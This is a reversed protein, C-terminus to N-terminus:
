FVVVTTLLPSVIEASRPIMSELNSILGMSIPIIRVPAISSPNRNSASESSRSVSPNRVSIMVAVDPANLRAQLM